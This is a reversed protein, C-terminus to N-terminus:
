LGYFAKATLKLDTIIFLNGKFTDVTDFSYARATSCDMIVSPM